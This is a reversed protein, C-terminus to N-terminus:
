KPYCNPRSPNCHYSLGLKCCKCQMGGPNKSIVDPHACCIKRGNNRKIDHKTQVVPVCWNIDMIQVNCHTCSGVRSDSKNQNLQLFNSVNWKQLYFSSLYKENKSQLQRRARSVVTTLSAMITTTSATTAETTTSSTILKTTTNTMTTTTPEYPPYFGETDCSENNCTEDADEFVKEDTIIKLCTDTSNNEINFNCINLCDIGQGCETKITGAPSCCQIIVPEPSNTALDATEV